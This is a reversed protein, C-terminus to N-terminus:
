VRPAPAPDAAAAAALPPRLPPLPRQLLLPTRSSTTVPSPQPYQVPVKGILTELVLVSFSYVDAEQSLRKNDEKEPAMYGGLRAITHAPILLLALSFDAVCVAGNKDLLVNTSKINGHPIASTRYERHICAARAGRRPSAEGENDLRVAVGRVDHLRDHLNGNPLYYYILLKEQDM